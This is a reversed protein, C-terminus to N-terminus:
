SEDTNESESEPEESAAEEIDELFPLGYWSVEGNNVRLIDHRSGVYEMYDGKMEEVIGRVVWENEKLSRDGKVGAAMDAKTMYRSLFIQQSFKRMTGKEWDPREGIAMLVKKGTGDDMFQQIAKLHYCFFIKEVPLAHIRTIVDRNMRNRERWEKQNFSDDENEIVGKALLAARMAFECWKLFTSGGDFIVGAVHGENALDGIINIYYKTKEILANYNISNDEHFISDDMEDLLPLVKLNERDPYVFDLTSRASNDVDFVFVTEGAMIEKHLLSAALGTKATNEHGVLAMRYTTANSVGSTFQKLYYARDYVISAGRDVPANTKTPTTTTKASDGWGNAM